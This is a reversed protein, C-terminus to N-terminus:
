GHEPAHLATTGSVRIPGRAARSSAGVESFPNSLESRADTSKRRPSTAAQNAGPQREQHKREPEARRPRARSGGGGVQM